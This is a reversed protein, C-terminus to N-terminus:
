KVAFFKKVAEHELKELVDDPLENKRFKEFVQCWSDEYEVGRVKIIAYVNKDSKKTIVFITSGDYLQTLEYKKMIHRETTCPQIENM